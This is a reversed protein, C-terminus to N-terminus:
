AVMAGQAAEIAAAETTYGDADIGDIAVPEGNSADVVFYKRGKKVLGLQVTDAAPESAVAAPESAVAAPESAVAAPEPSDPALTDVAADYDTANIRVPNGDRLVTVTALMEEERM